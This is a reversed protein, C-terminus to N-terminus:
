YECVYITYIMFANKEHYFQFEDWMSIIYMKITNTSFISYEPIVEYFVCHERFTKKIM